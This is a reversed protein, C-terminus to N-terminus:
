INGINKKTCWKQMLRTGKRLKNVPAPTSNMNMLLRSCHSQIRLCNSLGPMMCIVLSSLRRRNARSVRDWPKSAKRALFNLESFLNPSSPHSISMGAIFCTLVLRINLPNPWNLLSPEYNCKISVYYINANSRIGNRWTVSLQMRSTTLWNVHM